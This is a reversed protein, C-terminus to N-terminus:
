IPRGADNFNWVEPSPRTIDITTGSPAFSKEYIELAAKIDTLGQELKTKITEYSDSRIMDLTPLENAIRRLEQDTVASGSRVKLLANRLRNLDVSFKTFNKDVTMGTALGGAKRRRSFFGMQDKIQEIGIIGRGANGFLLDTFAQENKRIEALQTEQAPSLSGKGQQNIGAVTIRTQGAIRAAEQRSAIDAAKEPSLEVELDGIKMKVRELGLQRRLEKAYEPTGPQIGAAKLKADLEALQKQAAKDAFELQAELQGQMTAKARKGALTTEMESQAELGPIEVEQGAVSVKGGKATRGYIASLVQERDLKAQEERRAADGRQIGLQERQLGYQQKRAFDQEAQQMAQLIQAVASNGM